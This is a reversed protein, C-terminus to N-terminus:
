KSPGIPMIMIHAWPKGPYMLWPGNNIPNETIGSSAPTAYPTYVVYLYGPSHVKGTAVEVSERPAFAQYLAAAPVRYRGEQIDALRVSDIAEHKLGQARLERGRAMFPELERHYCSVHFRKGAPDDALCILTNSGERLPVLKGEADYGLVAAGARLSDPAPFVALAIQQDPTPPPVAPAAQGRLGAPLAAGLLLAPVTLRFCMMPSELTLSADRLM